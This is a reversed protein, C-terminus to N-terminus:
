QWSEKAKEWFIDKETSDLIRVKELFNGYVPDM